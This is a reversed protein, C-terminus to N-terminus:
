NNIKKKLYDLHYFVIAASNSIKLSKVDKNIEIKVILVMREGQNPTMPHSYRYFSCKKSQGFQDQHSNQIASM